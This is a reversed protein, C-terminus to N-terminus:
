IGEMNACPMSLIEVQTAAEASLSLGRGGGPQIADSILAFLHM